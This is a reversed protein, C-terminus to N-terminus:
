QDQFTLSKGETIDVLENWNELEIRKYKLSIVGERELKKLGASVSERSSGIYAALEAHSLEIPARDNLLYLHHLIGSIRAILPMNCTNDLHKELRFFASSVIEVTYKYLHPYKDYIQDVSSKDLYLVKTKKLAIADHPSNLGSLCSIFGLWEGQDFDRIINLEGKEM